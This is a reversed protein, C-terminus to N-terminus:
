ETGIRGKGPPPRRGIRRKGADHARWAPEIIEVCRFKRQAMYAAVEYFLPAEAAIKFFYSEIIVIQTDALTGAAGDLIALERGHTDIKILYPKPLERQTVLEDITVSVM